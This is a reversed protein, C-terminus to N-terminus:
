AHERRMKTRGNLTVFHVRSLMRELLLIWAGPLMRENEM